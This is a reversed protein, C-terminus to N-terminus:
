FIAGRNKVAHQVMKEAKARRLHALTKTELFKKIFDNLQLKGDLFSDAIVESEEDAELAAVRLIDILNSESFQERLVDQRQSHEDFQLRLDNLVDFKELVGKKREEFIPKKSLNERALEENGGCLDARTAMLQMIEPLQRVIDTQRDEDESLERLEQLSM